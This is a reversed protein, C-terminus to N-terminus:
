SGRSIAPIGEPKRKKLRRTTHYVYLKQEGRGEIVSIPPGRTQHNNLPYKASEEETGM